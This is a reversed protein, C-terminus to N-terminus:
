HLVMFRHIVTNSGAGGLAQARLFYLKDSPHAKPSAEFLTTLGASSYCYLASKVDNLLPSWTSNLLL